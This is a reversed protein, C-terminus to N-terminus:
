FSKSIFYIANHKQLFFKSEFGEKKEIKNDLGLM